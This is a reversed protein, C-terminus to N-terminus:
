MKAFNRVPEPNFYTLGTKEYMRSLVRIMMGLDEGALVESFKLDAFFINKCVADVTHMTFYKQNIFNVCNNVFLPFFAEETKDQIDCEASATKFHRQIPNQCAGANTGALGSLGDVLIKYDDAPLKFKKIYNTVAKFLTNIGISEMLYIQGFNCLKHASIENVRESSGGDALLRFAEAQLPLLLRNISFASNAEQLVPTLNVSRAHEPLFTRATNKSADHFIIEVMGTLEVPYFFHFGTCELHIDSPFFSSSNSLYPVDKGAIATLIEATRQKQYLDEATSEIILDPNFSKIKLACDPEDMSLYEARAAFIQGAKRSTKKKFEQIRDRSRSIWLVNVGEKMYFLGINLAMKGTGAIICNM